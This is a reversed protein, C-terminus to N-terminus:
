KERHYLFFWSFVFLGALMSFASAYYPYASPIFREYENHRFPRVPTKISTTLFGYGKRIYEVKFTFVGYVDPLIFTTSYKGKSDHQLKTRVYPDLMIYELQVDDALFPVWSNKDASWEEIIVSYELKDKITYTAPAIKEGVRHHDVDRARLVGREQFAWQTLQLTFKENGSKEYRKSKGDASYKQVPANFLEDSFLDLSGSFIIRANNRAQMATVLSTKRGAVHVDKVADNLTHSYASSSGSLVSFLLASDEEIDQGIGRFLVPTQTAEKGLIIPVNSMFSDSVILTHDGDFDSQDFNLHDIAFAGEEDFEVNCESAIERIPDAVTNDAAIIVNHGDDIFELVTEPSIGSLDEASPAFLILNDYKWEGYKRFVVTRDEATFFDITYGRAQLQSFFISHTQRISSNELIALVRKGSPPAANTSDASVV